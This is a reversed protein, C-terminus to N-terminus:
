GWRPKRQPGCDDNEPEESVCGICMGEHGTPLLCWGHGYQLRSLCHAGRDCPTGRSARDQTESPNTHEHAVATVLREYVADSLDFERTM